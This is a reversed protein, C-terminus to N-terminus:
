IHEFFKSHDCIKIGCMKSKNLVICLDPGQDNPSVLKLLHRLEITCDMQVASFELSNCM